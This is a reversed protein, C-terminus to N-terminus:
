SAVPTATGLTVTKGGAANDTEVMAIASVNVQSIYDYGSPPLVTQSDFYPTVNVATASVGEGTYSGTVGLIQVGSKINGPILKQAETADIKAKGTGDHQGASISIEDSVDDIEITQAGIVPMSGTIKNKNVYATKGSAIDGAAANADTTNSDYDNTGQVREGTKLHFYKGAAVDAAEATDSTLDILVSGGALAVKNVYENSAM